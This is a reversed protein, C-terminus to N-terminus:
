GLPPPFQLVVVLGGAQLAFSSTLGPRRDFRCRLGQRPRYSGASCEEVNPAWGCRALVLTPAIDGLTYALRAGPYAPDLPVYAGGAKLVGMLGVVM